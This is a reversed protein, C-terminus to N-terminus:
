PAPRSFKEKCRNASCPACDCYGKLSSSTVDVQQTSKAGAKSDIGFVEHPSNQLSEVLKRGIFGESGTVLIREM